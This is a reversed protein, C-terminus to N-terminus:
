DASGFLKHKKESLQAEKQPGSFCLVPPLPWLEIIDAWVLGQEQGHLSYRIGVLRNESFVMGTFVADNTSQGPGAVSLHIPDGKELGSEVLLEGNTINAPSKM